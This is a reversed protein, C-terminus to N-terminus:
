VGPHKVYFDVGRAEKSLWIQLCPSLEAEVAAARTERGNTRCPAGATHRVADGVCVDERFSLTHGGKSVPDRHAHYTLSRSYFWGPNLTPGSGRVPATTLLHASLSVSSLVPHFCVPGLPHRCALSDRAAGRALLSTQCTDEWLAEPLLPGASMRM